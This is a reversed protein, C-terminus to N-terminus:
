QAAGLQSAAVVASGGTNNNIAIAISSRNVYEQTINKPREAILYAATAQQPTIANRLMEGAKQERHSLEYLVFRLQEDTSSQKISHGFVKAFEDQRDKHWQAIGYADYQGTLKNYDGQSTTSLGSEKQLNAVIGVAQAKTLNGEQQLFSVADNIKKTQNDDFKTKKGADADAAKSGADGWGGSNWNKADLANSETLSYKRRLYESHIQLEREEQEKNGGFWSAIWKIFQAIKGLGEMFDKINQKFEPSALYVAFSKIQEGLDHIWVKIEPSSLFTDIAEAVSHSLEVLQPTLEVLHKTLSVEIQNGAEHLAVQFDQWDRSIKDDLEFKRLNQKFQTIAANLEEGSLVALRRMTQFDTLNELGMSSFVQQGAIGLGGRKTFEQVLRPLLEPLLQAASANPQNIGLGQLVFRKSADNQISALNGLFAKADIYRNFSIEASRLEGTTIGLGQAERRRDGAQAALGGLGFGGGLAGYAVWRAANFAINSFNNAVQASWKAMDKMLTINDRQQTKLDRMVKNFKDWSSTAKQGSRSAEDGLDKVGKTASSVSDQFKKFAEAFRKFSADEVDITIVSKANAM